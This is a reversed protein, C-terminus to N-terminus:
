KFFYIITNRSHNIRTELKKDRYEESELMKKTIEVGDSHYRKIINYLLNRLNNNEEQYYTM